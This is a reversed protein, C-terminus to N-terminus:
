GEVRLREKGRLGVGQGEGQWEEVRVKGLWELGLGATSMVVSIRSGSGEGNRIFVRCSWQTAPGVCLDIRFRGLSGQADGAKAHWCKGAEGKLHQRAMDLVKQIM